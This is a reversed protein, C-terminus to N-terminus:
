NVVSLNQQPQLLHEVWAPHGGDDRRVDIPDDHVLGPAVFRVYKGALIEQPSCNVIHSDLGLGLQLNAASDTHEPAALHVIEVGGHDGAQLVRLLLVHDDGSVISVGSIKVDLM